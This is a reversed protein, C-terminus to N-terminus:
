PITTQLPPHQWQTQTRATTHRTCLPLQLRLPIVISHSSPAKHEGAVSFTHTGTIHHNSNSKHAENNTNNRRQGVAWEVQAPTIRLEGALTQDGGFVKPRRSCDEVGCGGFHGLKHRSLSFV